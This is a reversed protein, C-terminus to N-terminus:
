RDKRPIPTPKLQSIKIHDITFNIKKSNLSIEGKIALPYILHGGMSHKPKWDSYNASIEVIGGDEYLMKTEAHVIEGSKEDAYIISQFGDERGLLNVFTPKIISFIHCGNNKGMYKLIMNSTSAYVKKIQVSALAVKTATSIVERITPAVKATDSTSTIELRKLKYYNAYEKPLKTYSFTGTIVNQNQQSIHYEGQYKMFWSETWREKVYRRLLEKSKNKAVVVVEDLIFNPTLSITMETSACNESSYVVAGKNMGIYIASITDGVSINSQRINIHGTSDTSGYYTNDIYIYAYELPTNDSMVRVKIDQASLSCVALLLISITIYNKM